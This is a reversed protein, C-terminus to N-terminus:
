HLIKNKHVNICIYVGVYIHGLTYPLIFCIGTYEAKSISNSCQEAKPIVVTNLIGTHGGRTVDKDKLGRQYILVCVRQNVIPKNESVM